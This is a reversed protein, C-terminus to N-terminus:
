TSSNRALAKSVRDKFDESLYSAVVLEQDEEVRGQSCIAAIAQKSQVISSTANRKIEQAATTVVRDLQVVPLMGNVLGSSQARSASIISGTFLMETAVARGVLGVLRAINDQDLSIGLQAIPVSFRATSDCYRLDCACALLCGGGFCPGVIMAITPLEFTAVANLSDRISMWHERAADASGLNRLESLDAGSAFADGEGAFIIVKAGAEKLSHMAHPIADWMERSIANRLHPRNLVICGIEDDLSASIDM